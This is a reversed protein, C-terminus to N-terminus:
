RHAGRDESLSAPTTVVSEGPVSNGYVICEGGDVELLASFGRQQLASHWRPNNYIIFVRRPKAALSRAINQMFKEVLAAGFPNNMFFVCDNDGIEYDVADGEVIRIDSQIGTKKRYRAVNNRAISCLEKAFELGVVREFGYSAALLLLRGKGCGVDVFTGDRPLRLAAMLRRVPRLHMPSYEVGEAVNPSDITLTRLEACVVTDTGYRLDFLREQFMSVARDMSGAIGRRRVKAILQKLGM